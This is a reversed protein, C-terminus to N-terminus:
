LRETLSAFNGLSSQDLLSHTYIVPSLPFKFTQSLKQVGAQEQLRINLVSAGTQNKVLNEFHMM